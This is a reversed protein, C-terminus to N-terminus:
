NKSLPEEYSFNDTPYPVIFTHEIRPSSKIYSIGAGAMLVSGLIAYGHWDTALGVEESFFYDVIFFVVAAIYYYVIM